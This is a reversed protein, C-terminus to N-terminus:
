FLIFWEEYNKEKMKEYVILYFLFKISKRKNEKREKNEKGSVEQYKSLM